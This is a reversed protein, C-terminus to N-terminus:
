RKRKGKEVDEKRTLKREEQKERQKAREEGKEKRENCKNNKKPKCIRRRPNATVEGTDDKVPWAMGKFPLCKNGGAPRDRPRM